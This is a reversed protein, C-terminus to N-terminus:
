KRPRQEGVSRVVLAPLLEQLKLSASSCWVSLRKQMNIQFKRCGIKGSSANERSTKPFQFCLPSVGKWDLSGSMSLSWRCMCVSHHSSPTFPLACCIQRTIYSPTGPFRKTTHRKCALNVMNPTVYTRWSPFLGVSPRRWRWAAQAAVTFEVASRLSWQCCHPTTLSFSAATVM